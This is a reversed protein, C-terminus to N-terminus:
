GSVTSEHAGIHGAIDAVTLLPDDRTDTARNSMQGEQAAPQLPVEVDYPLHDRAPSEIRCEFCRFSNVEPALYVCLWYVCDRTTVM